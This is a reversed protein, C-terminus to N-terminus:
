GHMNEDLMNTIDSVHRKYVDCVVSARVLGLSGLAATRTTCPTCRIRDFQSLKMWCGQCPSRTISPLVLGARTQKRREHESQKPFPHILRRLSYSHSPTGSVLSSALPRWADLNLVAILLLLLDLLMCRPLSLVPHAARAAIHVLLLARPRFRPLLVSHREPLPHVLLLRRPITPIDFLLLASRSPMIKPCSHLLLLAPRSRLLTPDSPLLLLAHHSHLLTSRSPLLLLAPLSRLLLEDCYSPSVARGTAASLRARRRCAM